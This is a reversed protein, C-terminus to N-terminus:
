EADDGKDIEIKIEGDDTSWDDSFEPPSVSFSSRPPLSLQFPIKDDFLQLKQFLNGKLRNRIEDTSLVPVEPPVSPRGQSQQFKFRPSTYIDNKWNAGYLLALRSLIQWQLLHNYVHIDRGWDAETLLEPEVEMLALITQDPMLTNGKCQMITKDLWKLQRDVVFTSEFHVAKPPDAGFVFVSIAIGLLAGVTIPLTSSVIKESSRNVYVLWVAGLLLLSIVFALIASIKL